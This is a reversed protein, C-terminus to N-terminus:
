CFLVKGANVYGWSLVLPPTKYVGFVGCSLDGINRM